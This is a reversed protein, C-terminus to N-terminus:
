NGPCLHRKDKSEVVIQSWLYKNGIGERVATIDTDLSGTTVAAWGSMFGGFSLFSLNTGAPQLLYM